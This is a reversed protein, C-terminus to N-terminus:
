ELRFVDGETDPIPSEEPTPPLEALQDGSGDPGYHCWDGHLHGGEALCELQEPDLTQFEWHEWLHTWDLQPVGLAQGLSAGGDVVFGHIGVMGMGGALAVDAAVMFAVSLVGTKLVSM